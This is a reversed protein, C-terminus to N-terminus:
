CVPRKDGTDGQLTQFTENINLKLKNETTKGKAIMPIGEPLAGYLRIFADVGSPSAFLIEHFGSLDVKSAEANFTNEYVPVDTVHNGLAQLEDSLYSLGKDSRPLLIHKDTIGTEKFCAILGEASETASEM